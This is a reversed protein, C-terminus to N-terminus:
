WTDVRRAEILGFVYKRAHATGYLDGNVAFYNGKKTLHQM